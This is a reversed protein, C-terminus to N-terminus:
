HEIINSDFKLSLTKNQRANIRQQAKEKWQYFLNIVDVMRHNTYFLAAMANLLKKYDELDSESEIGELKFQKKIHYNNLGANNKINYILKYLLDGQESQSEGGNILSDM